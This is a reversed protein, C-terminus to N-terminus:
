QNSWYANNYWNPTVTDVYKYAYSPTDKEYMFLNRYRQVIHPTGGHEISLSDIYPHDEMITQVEDNTRIFNLPSNMVHPVSNPWWLDAHDAWTTHSIRDPAIPMEDGRNARLYFEDDRDRRCPEFPERGIRKKKVYCIEPNYDEELKQTIYWDFKNSKKKPESADKASSENSPDGKAGNKKTYKPSESQKEQKEDSIQAGATRGEETSM